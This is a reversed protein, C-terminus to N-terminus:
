KTLVAIYDMRSRIFPIWSFIRYMPKYIDLGDFLNVDMIWNFNSNLKRLEYGKKLGWIFKANTEEVSKEKTNRVAIPPMIEVFITCSDFNDDIINLIKKVDNQKLYMTLGEIIFLIDEGSEIKSAWSSDMASYALTKVRDTDEIYNLRFKAANELDVNYWRIIGNDLRNFRTDMGSAINIITCNPHSSIYDSVMKDLVITRSIVGMQMSSDEEALTFDYDIQSIVEVAKSDFFKHNKEQSHKAKTYLTLLMTKEVGELNM